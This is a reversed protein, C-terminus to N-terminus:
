NLHKLKHNILFECNTSQHLKRQISNQNIFLTNMIHQNSNITNNMYLISSYNNHGLLLLITLYIPKDFNYVQRLELELVKM